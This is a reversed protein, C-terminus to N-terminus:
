GLENVELDFWLEIRKTGIGAEASQHRFHPKVVSMTAPPVALQRTGPQQIEPDGQTDPM